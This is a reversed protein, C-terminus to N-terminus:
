EFMEFRVAPQRSHSESDNVRPVLASVSLNGYLVRGTFSRCCGTERLVRCVVREGVAMEFVGGRNPEHATLWSVLLELHSLMFWRIWSHHRAYEDVADQYEEALAKQLRCVLVGRSTTSWNSANPEFHM